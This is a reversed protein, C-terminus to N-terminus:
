LLCSFILFFFRESAAIDITIPLQSVFLCHAITPTINYLLFMSEFLNLLLNKYSSTSFVKIFHLLFHIFNHAKSILADKGYLIFNLSVLRVWSAAYKIDMAM